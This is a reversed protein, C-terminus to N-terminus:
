HHVTSHTINLQFLLIELILAETLTKFNEVILIVNLRRNSLIVAGLKMGAVYLFLFLVSKKKKKQTRLKVMEQM